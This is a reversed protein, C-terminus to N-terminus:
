CHHKPIEFTFLRKVTLSLGMFWISKQFDQHQEKQFVAGHQWFLLLFLLFLVKRFFAIKLKQYNKVFISFYRLPIGMLALIKKPFLECIVKESYKIIQDFKAEFDINQAWFFNKSINKLGFIGFFRNKWFHEWLYMPILVEHFVVKCCGLHGNGVMNSWIFDYLLTQLFDIKQWFHSKWPNQSFKLNEIKSRLILWIWEFITKSTLFFKKLDRLCRLICYVDHYYWWCCNKSFTFIM